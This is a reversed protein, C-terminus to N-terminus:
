ERRPLFTESHWNQLTRKKAQRYHSGVDSGKLRHPALIHNIDAQIFLWGLGSPADKGEKFFIRGIVQAAAGELTVGPLGDELFVDPRQYFGLSRGSSSSLGCSLSPVRRSKLSKKKEKQGKRFSKILFHAGLGAAIIPLTVMGAAAALGAGVLSAIGLSQDTEKSTTEAIVM